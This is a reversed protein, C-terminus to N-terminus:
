IHKTMSCLGVVDLKKSLLSTSDFEWTSIFYTLDQLYHFIVKLFIFDFGFSSEGYLLSM